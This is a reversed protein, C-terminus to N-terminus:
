VFGYPLLAAVVDVSHSFCMTKRTVLFVQLTVKDIRLVFSNMLKNYKARGLLLKEDVECLQLKDVRNVLKLSSRQSFLM